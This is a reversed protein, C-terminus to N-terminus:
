FYKVFIEKFYFRNTIKYDYDKLLVVGSTDYYTNDIEVLCHHDVIIIYSEKHLQYYAIAAILVAADTCIGKRLLLTENPFQIRYDNRELKENDYKINTGVWYCLEEVSNFKVTDFVFFDFIGNYEISCNICLVVFIFLIVKRM